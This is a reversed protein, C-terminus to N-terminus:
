SMPEGGKPLSDIGLLRDYLDLRNVPYVWFSLHGM